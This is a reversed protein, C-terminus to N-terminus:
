DSLEMKAVVTAKYGPRNEWSDVLKLNEITAGIKAWETRITGAMVAGDMNDVLNSATSENVFVAQWHGEGGFVIIPSAEGDYTFPLNVSIGTNLDKPKPAIRIVPVSFIEAVKQFHRETWWESESEEMTLRAENRLIEVSLDDEFPTPIDLAKVNGIVSLPGCHGEGGCDVIHLDEGRRMRTVMENRVAQSYADVRIQEETRPLFDKPDILLAAIQQAEMAETVFENVKDITMDHPVQRCVVEMAKKTCEETASRLQAMPDM